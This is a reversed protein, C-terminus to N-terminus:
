FLLTCHMLFEKDPSLNRVVVQIAVYTDALRRGFIDKTEEWTLISQSCSVDFPVLAPSAAGVRQLGNKIDKTHAPDILAQFAPADVMGSLQSASSVTSLIAMAAPINGARIGNLFSQRQLEKWSMVEREASFIAAARNGHAAVTEDLAQCVTVFQLPDDTVGSVYSLNGRPRRREDADSVIAPQVAYTPITTM